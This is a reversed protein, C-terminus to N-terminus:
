QDTEGNLIIPLQEDTGIVIIKANPSEALEDTVDLGRWKLISIGSSDEFAKIGQAEILKRQKEKEESKLLYNYTLLKQEADMKIEISNRIIVPLKIDKIFLDEFIIYDESRGTIENQYSTLTDTDQNNLTSWSNIASLARNTIEAQIQERYEGYVENVEYQAIVDRTKAEIEPIIVDQIYRQGIYKHFIGLTKKNLHFRVSVELKVSLGNATLAHIKRSEEQLRVNYVYLTNWPAVFHLGEGFEGDESIDTGGNFLRYIVAAEGSDVRRVVLPALFLAILCLVMFFVAIGLWDRRKKVKEEKEEAM